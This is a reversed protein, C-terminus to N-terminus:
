HLHEFLHDVAVLLRNDLVLRLSLSSNNPDMARSAVKLPIHPPFLACTTGINELHQRVM